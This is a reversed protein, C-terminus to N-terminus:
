ISLDMWRGISLLKTFGIKCFFLIVEGLGDRKHKKKLEKEELKSCIKSRVFMEELNTKSVYKLHNKKELFDKRVNQFIYWVM